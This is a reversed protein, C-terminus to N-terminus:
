LLKAALIAAALAVLAAALDSTLARSLPGPCEEAMWEDRNMMEKKMRSAYRLLWDQREAAGVALSSEVRKLIREELDGIWREAAKEGAQRAAAGLYAIEEETLGSRGPRPVAVLWMGEQVADFIWRRREVEKDPVERRRDPGQGSRIDAGVTERGTDTRRERSNM